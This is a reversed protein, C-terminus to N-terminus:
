LTEISFQRSWGTKRGRPSPGINTQKLTCDTRLKQAPSADEPLRAILFAASCTTASAARWTLDLGPLDGSSKAAIGALANRARIPPLSYTTVEDCLASVGGKTVRRKGQSELRAIKNNQEVVGLQQTTPQDTSSLFQIKFSQGAALMHTMGTAGATPSPETPIAM